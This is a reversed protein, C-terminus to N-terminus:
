PQGLEQRCTKDFCSCDSPTPLLGVRCDCWFGLCLWGREARSMKWIRAYSEHGRHIWKRALAIGLSNREDSSYNWFSVVRGLTSGSIFFANAPM